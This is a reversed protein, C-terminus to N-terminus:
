AVDNGASGGGNASGHRTGTGEGRLILERYRLQIVPPEALELGSRQRLAEEVRSSAIAATEALRAEPTVDLLLAVRLGRRHLNDVRVLAECVDPQELMTYRLGEALDEVPITGRGDGVRVARRPSATRAWALVYGVAGLAALVTTAIARGATDERHGLWVIARTAGDLAPQPATWVLVAVGALLLAAVTAARFPHGAALQRPAQM